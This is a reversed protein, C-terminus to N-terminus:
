LTALWGEVNAKYDGESWFDDFTVDDQSIWEKQLAYARARRAHFCLARKFPRKLGDFKLWHGELEGFTTQGIAQGVEAWVEHSLDGAFKKLGDTHPDTLISILKKAKLAPDLIRMTFTQFGQKYIFCLKSNDLAWEIPKFLLLGNGADDVNISLLSHIGLGQWAHKVIHSAIVVQSPLSVGVLMCKILTLGSATSRKAANYESLLNSKFIRNSGRTIADENYIIVKDVIASSVSLNEVKSELASFRATMDLLKQQIDGSILFLTLLSLILLPNDLVDFFEDVRM